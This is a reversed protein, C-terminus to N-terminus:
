AWKTRETFGVYGGLGEVIREQLDIINTPANTERLWDLVYSGDVQLVRRLDILWALETETVWAAGTARIDAIPRTV